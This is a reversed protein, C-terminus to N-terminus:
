IMIDRMQFGTLTDPEMSEVIEEVMSNDPIFKKIIHRAGNQSLVKFEEKSIKDDNIMCHIRKVDMIDEIKLKEKLLNEDNLYRLDTVYYMKMDAFGKAYKQMNIRRLWESVSMEDMSASDVLIDKARDVQKQPQDRYRLFHGQLKAMSIKHEPLKRAFDEALQDEGPNFNLFLRSMQAHSANNLQVHYDARGPRMLAPDLKERHNTTMFLIRGEQSRVGDLANLLGSFSIQRSHQDKKVAERGVFLADIDELLIISHSPADNLARNLDDDDMRGSSLNLYCINLKLAGAIAQTFSTKGTGPPGYLLYGRRYPVGRKIYWESSEQFNQIDDIIKQQLNTDLVVSNLSRPKKSQVKTWGIGWRHQEYIGIMGEDKKMSHVIAADIFEKLITTDQGYAILHIFEQEEPIREWGTVL